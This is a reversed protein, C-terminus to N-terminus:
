NLEYNNNILLQEIAQQLPTSGCRIALERALTLDRQAAERRNLVHQIFGLSMASNAQESMDDLQRALTLAKQASKLAEELHGLEYQCKGRNQTAALEIRMIKHNDTGNRKCFEIAKDCLELGTQYDPIAKFAEHYARNAYIQAIAANDGSQLAIKTALNHYNEADDYGANLRAAALTSLRLAQQVFDGMNRASEVSKTYAQVAKEYEGTYHFYINGLKGALYHASNDDGEDSAVNIATELLWIAESTAGRTDLYNAEVVLQNMIDIMLQHDGNKYAARAAGLINMLEFHLADYNQVNDYTYNLAGHIIQRIDEKRIFIAHAYSKTLDHLRYHDPTNDTPLVLKLLGHRDLEGLDLEIQEPTKGTISSLLNVSARNTDLGGTLVLLHRLDPTLNNISEDLLDKVSRQPVGLEQTVGLSANHPAQRLERILRSPTKAPLIQLQKGVIEIAFPHDDLVKCLEVANVDQGYDKGAHLNLLEISAERTLPDVDYRRGTISHGIRSTMIMPTTNPIMQLIPIIARENWVNDIVLLWDKDLLEERIRIFRQEGDLLLLQSHDIDFIQAMVELWVNADHRGLEVWVVQDHGNELYRAALRAAIATKGIGGMGHFLLHGKAELFTIASEVIEARGVLQVPNELIAGARKYIRANMDGPEASSTITKTLFSSISSKSLVKEFDYALALVDEYRESPSKATAKQIIDDIEWPIDKNIPSMLPLLDTNHRMLMDYIGPTNAFPHEGMLMEYLIVGLAYIDTRETVPAAQGGFQEPAMYAPTGGGISSSSNTSQQKILRSLGFDALHASLSGDKTHNQEMLINAPKLDRHVINHEHVYHLAPAIQKLFRLVEDPHLPGNKAIYDELSGHEMWQMVFYIGDPERFFNYLQVIYPHKLSILIQAEARAREFNETSFTQDTDIIKIAFTQDLLNHRACYVTAFAGHGAESIIEYERVRKGVRDRKAMKGEGRMDGITATYNSTQNLDHITCCM